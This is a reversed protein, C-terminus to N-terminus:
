ESPQTVVIQGAQQERLKLIHESWAEQQIADTLQPKAEALSPKHAPRRGLLEIVAFGQPLSIPGAVEEVSMTNVAKLLAAPLAGASQWGLEGGIAASQADQSNDAALISFSKGARIEALIRDASTFSDVIIESLRFEDPLPKGYAKDYAVKLQAETVPRAASFKEIALGVVLRDRDVKLLEDFEPTKDIGLREAEVLAIRRDILGHVVDARIAPDDKAAPNVAMVDDLTIPDRGVQALIEAAAVPSSAIVLLLALVAKQM